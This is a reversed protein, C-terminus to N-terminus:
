FNFKFTAVLTRHRPLEPYLNLPNLRYNQDTLNLLGLSVEAQRRPFRYGALLNFQWFDDVPLEPDYGHNGQATWLSQAQSFFGSPHHFIAFLNLQQLVARNSASPIVTAPVEPFRSELRAQSIRYRAGLAWDRGILQNLNISLSQEEFKLRQHVTSPAFLDFPRATTFEFVGTEQAADSKLFEADFGLYTNSKFKREAGLHFTEFKSGAVPGAVSEPILSRFAQNFGAIQSPELRV